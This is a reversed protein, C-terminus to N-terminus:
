EGGKKKPTFYPVPELYGSEPAANVVPRPGGRGSFSAVEVKALAAIRRLEDLPKAELDAASYVSKTKENTSLEEVLAKREAEREANAAVVAADAKAAAADVRTSLGAITQDIKAVAANVADTAAKTAAATVGDIKDSFPKLAEAISASFGAMLEDKFAKKEQDSQM